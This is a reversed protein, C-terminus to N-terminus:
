ATASIEGISGELDYIYTHTHAVDFVNGIFVHM